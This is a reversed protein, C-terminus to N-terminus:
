QDGGTFERLSDAVIRLPGHEYTGSKPVKYMVPNEPGRRTVPLLAIGGGNVSLVWWYVDGNFTVVKGKHTNTLVPVEELDELVRYALPCVSGLPQIVPRDTPTVCMTQETGKLTRWPSVLVDLEGCQDASHSRVCLLKVWEGSALMVYRGIYKSWYELHSECRFDERYRQFQVVREYGPPIEGDLLTSTKVVVLNRREASAYGRVLGNFGTQWGDMCDTFAAAGSEWRAKSFLWDSPERNVCRVVTYKGEPLKKCLLSLDEECFGHPVVHDEEITIEDVLDFFRAPLDTGGSVCLMFGGTTNVNFVNFPGSARTKNLLWRGEEEALYAPYEESLPVSPRDSHPVHKQQARLSYLCFTGLKGAGVLLSKLQEIHTNM